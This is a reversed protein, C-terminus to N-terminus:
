VSTASAEFRLACHVNKVDDADHDDYDKNCTEEPQVDSTSHRLLRDSVERAAFLAGVPRPKDAQAWGFGEFLSRQDTRLVGAESPSM